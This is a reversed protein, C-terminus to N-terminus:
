ITKISLSGILILGPDAYAPTKVVDFGTLIVELEPHVETTLGGLEGVIIYGRETAVPETAHSLISISRTECFQRQTLPGTIVIRLCVLIDDILINQLINPCQDLRCVKM